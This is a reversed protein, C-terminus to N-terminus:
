DKRQQFDTLRAGVPGYYSYSLGALRGTQRFYAWRARFVATSLSSGEVLGNVILAGMAAAVDSAVDTETVVVGAAGLRFWAEIFDDVEGRKIVGSECANLLVIPKHSLIGAELKNLESAGLLGQDLELTYEERKIPVAARRNEINGVGGHALAYILDCDPAVESLAKLAEARTPPQWLKASRVRDSFMSEADSAELESAVMRLIRLRASPEISARGLRAGLSDVIRRGVPLPQDIPKVLNRPWALEHRFGWFRTPCVVDDGHHACGEANPDSSSCVTPSPSATAAGEYVGSLPVTLSGIADLDAAVAMTGGVPVGSTGRGLLQNRLSSGVEAMQAMTQPDPVGEAGIRAATTVSATSRELAHRYAASSQELDAVLTRHRVVQRGGTGGALVWTEILDGSISGHIMVTGDIPARGSAVEKALSGASYTVHGLGQEIRVDLQGAEIGTAQRLQVSEIVRGDVHLDAQLQFPRSDSPVEFELRTAARNSSLGPARGTTAGLAGTTPGVASGISGVVVELRDALRANSALTRPMRVTVEADYRGGRELPGSVSQGTAPDVVRVEVQNSTQFWWIDTPVPRRLAILAVSSLVLGISTATGIPDSFPGAVIRVYGREELCVQEFVGGIPIVGPPHSRLKGIPLTYRGSDRAGATKDVVTGRFGYVEAWVRWRRGELATGPAIDWDVIVAEVNDPDVEIPNARSSAALQVPEGLSGDVMVVQVTVACDRPGGNIQAATPTAPQLTVIGATLLLGAIASRRTMYRVRASRVARKFQTLALSFAFGVGLGGWWPLRGHNIFRSLGLRTAVFILCVSWIAGVILSLAFRLRRRRRIAKTPGVLGILLALRELWVPAQRISSNFMMM